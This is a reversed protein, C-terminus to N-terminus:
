FTTHLLITIKAPGSLYYEHKLYKRCDTFHTKILYKYLNPFSAYLMVAVLNLVSTYFAAVHYGGPKFHHINVDLNNKGTNM